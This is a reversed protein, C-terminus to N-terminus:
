KELRMLISVLEPKTMRSYYPVNKKRALAILERATLTNLVERKIANLLWQRTTEASPNAEILQLCNEKQEPSLRNYLDQFEDSHVFGDLSRWRLTQAHISQRLDNIKM